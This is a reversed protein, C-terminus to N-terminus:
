KKEAGQNAMNQARKKNAGKQAGSGAIKVMAQAGKSLGATAMGIAVGAIKSLVSTMVEQFKSSVTGGVLNNTLEKAVGMISYILMCILAIAVFAATLELSDPNQLMEYLEELALMATGMLIALFCVYASSSIVIIFARKAWQRTVKFACAMIFLSALSSMIAMKFISDILYFVFGIQVITFVIWMIIGLLVALFGAKSLTMLAARKGAAVRQDVSCIICQMMEKPQEPFGMMTVKDFGDPRCLGSYTTDILVPDKNYFGDISDQTLDIFADAESAGALMMSGLELFTNYIPFVFTNLTFLIMEPSSALIGCFVCLFLQRFVSQWLEGINEETVSGVHLLVKYSLWVAFAIMMVTFAGNSLKNYMYISAKGLAMYTDEVVGAQWCRQGADVLEEEKTNSEELQDKTIALQEDTEFNETCAQLMFTVSLLLMILRIIRYKEAVKKM